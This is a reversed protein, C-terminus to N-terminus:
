NIINIVLRSIISEKNVIQLIFMGPDPLFIKSDTQLLDQRIIERGHMDRVVFGHPQESSINLYQMFPNPYVNVRFDNEISIRESTILTSDLLINEDGAMYDAFIFYTMLMEDETTPGYQVTQPPNNPNDPNNVTNDYSAKAYIRAGAPIKQIQRFMYYKQWHFDWQPIDILPISDGAITKFWVQYSKGLRHMHPCISILSRDMPMPASMQDFTIVSDPPIILPGQSTIPNNLMWQVNIARTNVPNTIFRLNMKTSDVHGQFGPGYHVEMVFDAHPPVAIGWNPPYEAMNGGPQWANMYHSSALGSSFGPLPDMSDNYFSNGSMDFHIDAHHVASHLGPLVEIKSVYVTDTFGTHIAFYRYEDQNYQLTYDPIRFTFNISDLQSGNNNFVPPDPEFATDGQPMGNIFWLNIALIEASDLLAENAFHRYNPDAPWPPMEHDNVADIIDQGNTNADNYSMLAFPAIGGSRHCSSCNSYIINAISTSWDQASSYFTHFLIAIFFIHPRM